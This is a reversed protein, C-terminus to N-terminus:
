SGIVIPNNAGTPNPGSSNANITYNQIYAANAASVANAIAQQYQQVQQVTPILSQPTNSANSSSSANNAAGSWDDAYGVTGTLLVAIVCSLILKSKVNTRM